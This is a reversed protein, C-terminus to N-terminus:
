RLVAGTACRLHPSSVQKTWTVSTGTYQPPPRVSSWASAANPARVSRAQCGARCGATGSRFAMARVASRALIACNQLTRLDATIGPARHLRADIRHRQLIVGFPQVAFHQPM